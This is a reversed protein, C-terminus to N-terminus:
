KIIRDVTFSEALYSLMERIDQLDDKNLLFESKESFSYEFQIQHYIKLFYAYIYKIHEAEKKSLKTLDNDILFDIRDLINTPLHDIFDPHNWFNRIKRLM